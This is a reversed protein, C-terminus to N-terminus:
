SGAEGVQRYVEALEPQVPRPGFSCVIVAREPGAGPRRHLTCPVRLARTRDQATMLLTLGDPVPQETGRHRYITSAGYLTFVSRIYGGDAHLGDVDESVLGEREHRYELSKLSVAEEPLAERLLGELWCAYRALQPFKWWLKAHSPLVTRARTLRPLVGDDFFVPTGVLTFGRGRMDQRLVSALDAPQPDIQLDAQL